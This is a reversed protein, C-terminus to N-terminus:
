SLLHPSKRKKINLVTVISPGEILHAATAATFLLQYTISEKLIFQMENMIQISKEKETRHLDSYTM